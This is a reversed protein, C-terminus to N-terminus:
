TQPCKRQHASLFAIAEESNLYLQPVDKVCLIWRSDEQILKWTDHQQSSTIQWRNGQSLQTLFGLKRAKELM